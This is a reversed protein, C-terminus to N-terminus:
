RSGTKPDPEPEPPSVYPDGLPRGALYDDVDKRVAALEEPSTGIYKRVIRGKKDVLYTTPLTGIGQWAAEVKPGGWYTEYRVKTGTVVSKIEAGSAVDAVVIGVVRLGRKARATSLAQLEPMEQRCPACWTAWFNVLTLKAGNWAVEADKGELTQVRIPSVVDGPTLAAGADAREGWILTAGLVAAALCARRSRSVPSSGAVGVKALDHEVLQAIGAM